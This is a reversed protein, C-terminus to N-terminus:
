KVSYDLITTRESYVFELKYAGPHLASLDIVSNGLPVSQRKLPESSEGVYINLQLAASDNNSVIINKLVPSQIISVQLPAGTTLSIDDIGMRLGGDGGDNGKPNVPLFKITHKRQTATFTVSREVWDIKNTNSARDSYSADSTAVLEDELYIKWAGYNALKDNERVVAQYFAITYVHGPIFGEVDQMIGEDHSNTPGRNDRVASVFTLGSHPDGNLWWEPDPADHSTLDPSALYDAGAKCIPDNYPVSQWDDPLQSMNHTVEGELGGNKFQQAHLTQLSVMALVILYKM